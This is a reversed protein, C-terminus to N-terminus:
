KDTASEPVYDEPYLISVFGNDERFLKKAADQVMAPTISDVLHDYNLVMNKDEKWFLVKSLAGTWYRNEQIETRHAEKWQNKVKDLDKTDPGKLQIKKIEADAAQLLKEVNEPGCPLQLFVNFHEYPNKEVSAGYGGTYIGGLKERLEEIVKINLVETLAEASLSFETSYSTTGSYVAFIMSQKEQGKKFNLVKGGVPRVGNDKFAPTHGSVPLSAIYTEILPIATKEDINGVFFFHYGDASGLEQRFIDIARDMQLADFEKAEPIMSPALPHNNYLAKMTTDFFAFQPSAGMFMLQSKQKDVFAKFLAEDKRPATLQLYLLQMMSEMDRINSNGSISNQISGISVKVSVPKGALVKELDAPTFDGYGMAGAIAAAYKVNSKDALGYNNSGGKKIASMRIEDSKLDTSKITVKVGNSLTYTTADFAPEQATATIKGPEPKKSLLSTAVEKEEAKTVQQLFGKKTLALLSANDPLKTDPDDPGTLLTFTNTNSLWKKALANVTELNIGPLLQRHYEYENEIGPFAEGTLFNRVYENVYNGSETTNRENYAKEISSIINKGALELESQTFGYERVRVLEGTLSMLAHEIGDKGMLAFANFAQHNRAWSYNSTMAYLFPPNSSRTLDNLRRNIMLTVLRESIGQRYDGLTKDAGKKEAPFIIQLQYQTAEKDTLVMATANTRAPMDFAKRERPKAPNQLHAFHKQIYQMATASDIDGSIAVAQLDPRYWDTYFRRLADYKFNKLIDDKGIPLRTAYRSGAMLEPLYKQMMRDNAGKGMRSEELVVGRESDIEKPDLLAHHAWDEIIQFGKDLNGPKDTPIPLIYVTEEFSTYANLDAGFQVGISQLYSVLENKEFHKTGNFNMHEMFHALGLQDEDELISGANIALRLEVKKEPKGNPRIYYTLGNALKGKIVKADDPLPMSLDQAAVPALSYLVAVMCCVIVRYPQKFFSSVTM